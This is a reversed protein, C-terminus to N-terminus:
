EQRPRLEVWWTTGFHYRKIEVVELGSDDVLKQIDKNWWCGHKDAHAAAHDDLIRNLWAYHSRGHELLLIRGTPNALQGLHKLLSAADPTSCLGMTQLVTDFGTPAPRPIPNHASQTLFRELLLAYMGVFKQRAVEVMQASQDVMTISRCKKVDYYRTNRGTGVSVELVHGLAQRTLSRRLWGLGMLKETTNVEHDFTQATQNYRDSVDEPVELKEKTTSETSSSSYVYTGYCAVCYIALGGLILPTRRSKSPSNRRPELVPDVLNLPKYFANQTRKIMEARVALTEKSSQLSQPKKM